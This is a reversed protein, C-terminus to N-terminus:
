ECGRHKKLKANIEKTQQPNIAHEKLLDLKCYKEAVMVAQRFFHPNTTFMNGLMLHVYKKESHPLASWNEFAIPLLINQPLKEYKGINLAQSFM